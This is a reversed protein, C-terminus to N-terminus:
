VLKLYNIAEENTPFIKIFSGLKILNFINMIDQSVRTISIEGKQKRLVKTINIIKGIGSSDIYTVEKFDLIFKRIGAQALYLILMELTNSSNIDIKDLLLCKVIKNQVETSNIFEIDIKM